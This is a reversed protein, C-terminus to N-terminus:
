PMQGKKACKPFGSQHFLDEDFEESNAQLSLEKSRGITPRHCISKRQRPCDFIEQYDKPGERVARCRGREPTAQECTWLGRAQKPAEEKWRRCFSKDEQYCISFRTHALPDECVRFERTAQRASHQTARQKERQRNPQTGRNQRNAIARWGRRCWEFL